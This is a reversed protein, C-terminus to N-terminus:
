EASATASGAQAADQNARQAMALHPSASAMGSALSPTGDPLKVVDFSAIRERQQSQAISVVRSVEIRINGEQDLRVVQEYHQMAAVREDKQAADKEGKVPEPASAFTLVGPASAVLSGRVARLDGVVWSASNDNANWVMAGDFPKGFAAGAFVASCTGKSVTASIGVISASNRADKAGPNSQVQVSGEFEGQVRSVLDSVTASRALSAVQTNEAAKAFGAASVLAVAAAGAVLVRAAVSRVVQQRQLLRAVM